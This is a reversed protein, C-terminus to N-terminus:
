LHYVELSLISYRLSNRVPYQISQFSLMTISFGSQELNLFKVAFHLVNNIRMVNSAFWFYM